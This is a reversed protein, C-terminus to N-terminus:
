CERLPVSFFLSTAHFMCHRILPAHYPGHSSFNITLLSFAHCIYHRIYRPGIPGTGSERLGVVRRGQDPMMCIRGSMPCMNVPSLGADPRSDLTVRLNYFGPWRMMLWIGTASKVPPLLKVCLKDCFHSLVVLYEIFSPLVSPSPSPLVWLLPLTATFPILDGRKLWWHM